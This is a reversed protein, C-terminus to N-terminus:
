KVLKGTFDMEQLMEQVEKIDVDSGDKTSVTLIATKYELTAKYKPYEEFLVESITQACGGCTMGFVEIKVTSQAFAMTLMILLGIVIKKM